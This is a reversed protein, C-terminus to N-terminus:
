SRNIKSHPSLATKTPTIPSHVCTHKGTTGVLVMKNVPLKITQGPPTYSKRHHVGRGLSGLIEFDEYM